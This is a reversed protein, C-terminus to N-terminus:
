AMDGSMVVGGDCIRKMCKRKEMSVKGERSEDSCKRGMDANYVEAKGFLSRGIEM